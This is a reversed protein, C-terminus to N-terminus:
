LQNKMDLLWGFVHVKDPQHGTLVANVKASKLSEELFMISSYLDGCPKALDRIDIGFSLAESYLDIGCVLISVKLSVSISNLVILIGSLLRKSVNRSFYRSCSSDAPATLLRCGTLALRAYNESFISSLGIM